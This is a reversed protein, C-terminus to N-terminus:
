SFFDTTGCCRSSPIKKSKWRSLVGAPQGCRPCSFDLPLPGEHIYGCVTCRWREAATKEPENFRLRDLLQDRDTEGLPEEESLSRLFARTNASQPLM